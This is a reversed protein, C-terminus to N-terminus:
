YTCRGGVCPRPECTYTTTCSTYGAQVTAAVLKGQRSAANKITDPTNAVLPLYDNYWSRHTSDPWGGWYTVWDNQSDAGLQQGRSNYSYGNDETWCSCSGPYRQQDCGGCSGITAQYKLVVENAIQHAARRCVTQQDTGGCLVGSLWSWQITGMCANYVYTWLSNIGNYAQMYTKVPRDATTVAVGCEDVLLKECSGSTLPAAQQTSVPGAYPTTPYSGAPKPFIFSNLHYPEIIPSCSPNGMTKGLYAGTAVDDAATNAALTNVRVGPKLNNVDKVYLPMSCAHVGFNGLVDQTSRPHTGDWLTDTFRQGSSDSLLATHTVALGLQALVPTLAGPATSISVDGAAANTYRGPHYACSQHPTRIEGPECVQAHAVTALASVVVAVVLITRM